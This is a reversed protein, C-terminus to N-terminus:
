ATSKFPNVITVGMTVFGHQMDESYLIDSGSRAAAVVVLADWFSLQAAISLDAAEKIAEFDTTIVPWTALRELYGLALRPEIRTRVKRTLTVYLEQLVQTSTRLRGSLMLEQLLKQAALLRVPDDGSLAYVLINTDVFCPRGSM